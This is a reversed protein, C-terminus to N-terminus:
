QRVYHRQTGAESPEGNDIITLTVADPGAWTLTASSTQGELHESLVDGDVSWDCALTNGGGAALRYECTGDPRGEWIVETPQGGLPLTTQWAGVLSPAPVTTPPATTPPATTAETSPPDSAPSGTGADDSSGSCSAFTVAAVIVAAARATTRFLM